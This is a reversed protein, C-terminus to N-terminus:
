AIMSSNSPSANFRCTRASSISMSAKRAAANTARQRRRDFQDALFPGEQDEAAGEVAELMEFLELGAEPDRAVYQGVPEAFQDFAPDELPAGVGIVPALHDIREAGLALRQKRHHQRQALPALIPAMALLVDHEGVLAVSLRDLSDRDMGLVPAFQRRCSNIHTSRVVPAVSLRGCVAQCVCFVFPRGRPVARTM